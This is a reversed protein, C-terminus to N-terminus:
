ESELDALYNKIHIEAQECPFASFVYVTCNNRLLRARGVCQELESEISYLQVEKLIEDSYTTILFSNNKYNVRRLSPRKDKEQNVDAGLYCAILKYYEDVKYYTGIIAIDKGSLDNFGTSNGFHIGVSNLENMDMLEEICKFTIFVLDQKNAIKKAVDFVKMKRSLDKRGLSHYTYQVIKGKYAAKQEKYIFIDAKGNFYLRYIEYNFTASLVIYKMKALLLPCFYKIRVEGTDRDKIKVFTKAYKLDNINDHVCFSELEELQKESLPEITENNDIKQYDDEEVDLLMSAIKSYAGWGKEALEELCNISVSYMRNFCQLLLFDEDIIVTFNKLTSEKMQLLYAHTTVVIREKIESPDKLINECEEILALADPKNEKVEKYYEKIVRKTINHIGQQHSQSIEEQIEVPIFGNETVSPTVYLSDKPIGDMILENGVKKKLKNTPLAVLFRSDTNEAILEIYSKTKGLGTQAKILHIGEEKSLFAHNLNEKLLNEAKNISAYEEKGQYVKRDMAFTNLMTGENECKNYYPCFQESCRKSHYGKFYKMSDKWKHLSDEGYYTGIIELFYKRGGNINLLNTAIAFKADHGLEKGNVFDNFLQCDTIRNQIDVRKQERNCTISQHLGSEVIFFPSNKTDATIHKVTSDMKEGCIVEEDEIRGMCLMGNITLINTKQAFRKANENFHKGIDLSKLFPLLLQVLALRARNDFYVLEKGGFFMRDMNQCSTDCEPFIKILMQLIVNIIFKDQEPQELVFIIRFKEKEASSSLTHYAYTIQLGIDDCKKKVEKFTCGEDFDLACIQMETCNESKIGGVLHAPIIAYGRNGNLDALEELEIEKWGKATRYKTKIIDNKDSPKKRFGVNDISIKVKM